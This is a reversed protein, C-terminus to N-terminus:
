TRKEVEKAIANRAAERNGYEPCLAYLANSYRDIEKQMSDFVWAWELENMRAPQQSHQLKRHDWEAYLKERALFITAFDGSM